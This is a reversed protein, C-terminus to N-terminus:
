ALTKTAASSHQQTQNNTLTARINRLCQHPKSDQQALAPTQKPQGLFYSHTKRRNDQGMYLLTKKKIDETICKCKDTHIMRKHLASCATHTHPKHYLVCMPSLIQTHGPSSSLQIRIHNQENNSYLAHPM